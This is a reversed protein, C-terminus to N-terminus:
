YISSLRRLHERTKRTASAPNLLTRNDLKTERDVAQGFNQQVYNSYIDLTILLRQAWKLRQVQSRNSIIPQLELLFM